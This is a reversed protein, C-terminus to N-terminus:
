WKTVPLSDPLGLGPRGPVKLTGNRILPAEWNPFNTLVDGTALGCPSLTESRAAAVQMAGARGIPGDFATTVVPNLGARLSEDILEISRDIGGILHPKVIIVDAAKEERITELDYRLLSEDLAIRCLKRCRRHAKLNNRAFPQELYDLPLEKIFSRHELLSEITWSENPDIRFEIVKSTRDRLSKVTKFTEYPSPLAKVKVTRFGQQVLRDFSEEYNGSLLLTANLTVELANQNVDRYSHYLPRKRRKAELDLRAENLAYRAAPAETFNQEYDELDGPTEFSRESLSKLHKRCSSESETWGDLPAAEGYGVHTGTELRLIFVPRNRLSDRDRYPPTYRLTSESM